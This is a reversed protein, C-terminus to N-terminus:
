REEPDSQPFFVSSSIGNAAPEFRFGVAMLLDRWGTVIGAKNEISKQTTYMANKQGRHIRQLSKEVLHLCVRLADRCKDPQKVLECLAQGILAVKNSLRINAGGIVMFGAWNVPNNFHKTHQVTQMAETLANAVKSGQLLASYFARLLIKSAMEPVPWLSILVAGCGSILWSNTFNAIASGSIQDANSNTNFVVLKAALRMSSIESGSLIYDNIPIEMASNNMDNAEDEQDIEGNSNPYYRKSNSQSEVMNGPSLVVASHKWAVQCAFHICEATTIDSLVTEKSASQQILPKTHLMESIMAAEQVASTPDSWSIEPHSRNGGM